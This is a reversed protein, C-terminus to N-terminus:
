ALLRRLQGRDIEPAADEGPEALHELVVEGRRNLTRKAQGEPRSLRRFEALLGAERLAIQGMDAHLDLTGGQDRAAVGTDREYVTVDIGHRQLVRACTLGGPGAGIVAIRPTTTM